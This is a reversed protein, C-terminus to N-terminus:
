RHVKESRGLSGKTQADVVASGEADFYPPDLVTVTFEGDSIPPKDPLRCTIMAEGVRLDAEWGAGAPRCAPIVGTLVLGRDPFAGAMVREPHIGAVKDGSPVFGLYGVLEAVRRSAPHLVVENPAGVQLLEGRDIVALRDAFAQADPLEHTVLIAPISRDAILSGVLNTLTRRLSADLGTYPEDLLLTDCHALLLRGLAVRHAQGGSLRAPMASLLSEIGLVSALESLASGSPSATPAYCLNDRVSLHPFLGPNQRLLGVWRQWPPLAIVPPVTSTLVRDGLCILGRRPPVLGAIVELLTTKGAGSPGFLALREGPAVQLAARVTFERRDVEVDADLM